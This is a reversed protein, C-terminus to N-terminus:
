GLWVWLVSRSHGQIPHFAPSPDNAPGKEGGETCGEEGDSETQTATLILTSLPSASSARVPVPPEPNPNLDHNPTENWIAPSLRM